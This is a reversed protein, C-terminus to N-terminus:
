RVLDFAPAIPSPRSNALRSSTTSARSFPSSSVSVGIRSRSVPLRISRVTARSSWATSCVGSCATSRRIMLVVTPRTIQFLESGSSIGNM